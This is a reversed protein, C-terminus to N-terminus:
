VLGSANNAHDIARAYYYYEKTPDLGNDTWNQTDGPNGGIEAVKNSNDANFGATVSRYIFVKVFDTDTPNKWSLTYTANGNSRAKGFDSPASPATTDLTTSTQTNTTESLDGDISVKFWFKGESGFQTGTVQVQCSNSPNTLDILPGFATYSGGDKKSYFQATAGDTTCSLKFDTYNIYGPLTQIKVVTAAKAPTAFAVLGVLGVLYGILWNVLRTKQM